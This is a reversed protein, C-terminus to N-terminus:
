PVFPSFPVSQRLSLRTPTNLYTFARRRAAEAMARAKPNIPHKDAQSHSQETLALEV